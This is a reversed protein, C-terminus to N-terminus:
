IGDQNDVCKFVFSKDRPLKAVPPIITPFLSKINM